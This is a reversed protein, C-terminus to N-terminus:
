LEPWLQEDLWSDALVAYDRFDIMSDSNLDAALDPVDALWDSTMM